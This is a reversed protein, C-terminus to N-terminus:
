TSQGSLAIFREFIIEGRQFGLSYMDVNRRVENEAQLREIDEWMLSACNVSFTFRLQCVCSNFWYYNSACIHIQM